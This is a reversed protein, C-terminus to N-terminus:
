KDRADISIKILDLFFVYNHKLCEFFSFSCMTNNIYIINYIYVLSYNLPERHLKMMSFYKHCRARGRFASDASQM